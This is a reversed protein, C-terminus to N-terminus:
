VYVCVCVGSCEKFSPHRILYVAYTMKCFSVRLFFKTLSSLKVARVAVRMDQSLSEKTRPSLFHLGAALPSDAGRSERERGIFIDRERERERTGESCETCCAEMTM